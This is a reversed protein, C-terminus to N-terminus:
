SQQMKQLWIKELDCYRHTQYIENSEFSVGFVQEIRLMLEIHRLSDWSPTIGIEAESIHADDPISLVEAVVSALQSAIADNAVATPNIAEVNQNSTARGETKSLGVASVPAHFGFVGVASHSPEHVFYNKNPPIQNLTEILKEAVEEPLLTEANEPRHKESLKTNVYGPAYVFGRVGYPSYRKEIGNIFGVASYKAAIYDEWGQPYYHMGTTGIVCITGHQKRLFLPLAPVAISKLASYSVSMHNEIGADLPASAAHIIADLAAQKRITENIRNLDDECDLCGQIPLVHAGDMRCKEVLEGVRGDENRYHLLLDWGARACALSVSRGIGGTAGTILAVKKENVSHSEIGEADPLWEDVRSKVSIKGELVIDTGRLGLVCLNIVRLNHNVAVIRASYTICDGYYVPRVAKLEHGLYLSPDGPFGMGAIASLPSAVLHVPVIPRKFESKKAYSDSHHLPNKDGSLQSFVLYDKKTFERNFYLYDGVQFEKFTKKSQTNM